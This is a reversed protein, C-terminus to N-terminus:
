VILGNKLKSDLTDRYKKGVPIGKVTENNKIFIMSKAPNLGVLFSLNIIDRKEVQVFDHPLIEMLKKLTERKTFVGKETFIKVNNISNSDTSIHSIENFRIYAFFMANYNLDGKMHSPHVRAEIWKQQYVVRVELEDDSELVTSKTENQTILLYDTQIGKSSMMNLSHYDDNNLTLYISNHIELSFQKGLTVDDIYIPLNKMGKIIDLVLSINGTLKKM